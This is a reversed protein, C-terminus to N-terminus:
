GLVFSSGDFPFEGTLMKFLIVGLSWIDVSRPDYYVRRVIEPSMYAPTGCFSNIKQGMELQLSFGFDIIKPTLTEQLLLVNDMKLDRHAIRKNHLYSVAEILEKFIKKAIKPPIRDNPQANLYDYLTNTGLHEMVIHINKVTHIESIIAVINPHSLSKLNTIERIVNKFKIPSLLKTREYTKIAVKRNTGKEVASYVKGYGGTGLVKGFFFQTLETYVAVQDGSQGMNMPSNESSKVLHERLKKNISKKRQVLQENKGLSNLITGVNNKKTEQVESIDTKKKLWKKAKFEKLVMSESLKLSSWNMMNSSNKSRANTSSLHGTKERSRNLPTVKDISARSNAFLSNKEDELGRIRLPSGERSRSMQPEKKAELKEGLAQSKRHASLPTAPKRSIAKIRKTMESMFVPDNFPSKSQMMAEKLQWTAQKKRTEDAKKKKIQKEAKQTQEKLKASPLKAQPSDISTKRKMVSNAKNTFKTSSFEKSLIMQLNGQTKSLFDEPGNEKQPEKGKLNSKAPSDHGSEEKISTIRLHNESVLNGSEFPSKKPSVPSDTEENQLGTLVLDRKISFSRSLKEEQHFASSSNFTKFLKVSPSSFIPSASKFKNENIQPRTFM